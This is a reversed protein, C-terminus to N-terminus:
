MYVWIPLLALHTTHSANLPNAPPLPLPKPHTLHPRFHTRETIKTPRLPRARLPRPRTKRSPTARTRYLSLFHNPIHSIRASIPENSLEKLPTPPLLPRARSHALAPREPLHQAPETSPSSTTQSTRSASSFPNTRYKKSRLPRCFRVPRPTPSSPDKPLANRPNPPPLPLPKPHTLHPRFHTRETIRTPCTPPPASPRPFHALAPREPLHQAPETSPSSTAQSTHSASSFPKTRYNQNPPASPCPLPRPAPREPLHQAPETSPSSTAQSTHSASSFPKTRYNKNPSHTASRIPMPTPSPPDKPFTNRPNSAPVPLSKPHTLYPRFHSRETIRTPRTPPPASQCPLPRPGTRRSPTAHTRHLSLFHSPIHSIRVFIAENPLKPQASHTASRVPAPTTQPLPRPSVPRPATPSLRDCVPEAPLPLHRRDLPM